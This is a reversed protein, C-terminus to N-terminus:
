SKGKRDLKIKEFDHLMMAMNAELRSITELAKNIWPIKTSITRVDTAHESLMAQIDREHDTFLMHIKGQIQQRMAKSVLRGIDREMQRQTAARDKKLEGGLNRVLRDMLKRQTEQASM